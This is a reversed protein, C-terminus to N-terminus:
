RSRRALAALVRLYALLDRRDIGNLMRAMRARLVPEASLILENGEATLSVLKVRSDTESVSRKVYNKAELALVAKAAMPATVDMEEALRAQSIEDASAVLGLIAWDTLSLGFEGLYASFERNLNRYARGQVLGSEATSPIFDPPMM